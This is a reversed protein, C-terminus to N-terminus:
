HDGAPELCVGAALLSTELVDETSTYAEYLLGLFGSEEAATVNSQKNDVFICRQALEGDELSALSSGAGVHARLRDLAVQLTRTIFWHPISDALAFQGRGVSAVHHLGKKARKECRACAPWVTELLIPRVPLVRYPVAVKFIAADPKACAATDSVVFLPSELAVVEDFGSRTFVESLWSAVHNSIIGVIYGSSQVRKLVELIRAARGDTAFRSLYDLHAKHLAAGHEPKEGVAALLSAYFEDSTITGVQVIGLYLQLPMLQAALLSFHDEGNVLLSV